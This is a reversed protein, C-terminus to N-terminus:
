ETLHPLEYSLWRVGSYIDTKENQNTIRANAPAEARESSQILDTSVDPKLLGHSRHYTHTGVKSREPDDEPREKRLYGALEAWTKDRYKGTFLCHLQVTGLEWLSEIEELDASWGFAANLVFHIHWRGEGHRHEVVYVWKFSQGRRSRVNGVRRYFRKAAAECAARNRPEAGAEFTLTCFYDHIPRFNAALTLKLNRASLLGNKIKRAESSARSKAARQKPADYRNPATYEIIEVCNGATITTRRKKGM